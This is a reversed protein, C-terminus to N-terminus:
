GVGGKKNESYHQQKPHIKCLHWSKGFDLFQKLGRTEVAPSNSFEKFVVKLRHIMRTILEFRLIIPLFTVNYKKLPYPSILLIM